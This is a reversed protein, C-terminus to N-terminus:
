DMNLIERIIYIIIPTYLFVDIHRVASILADATYLSVDHITIDKKHIYKWILKEYENYPEAKDDMFTLLQKDDFFDRKDTIIGVERTSLPQMVLVIMDDYRSFSSLPYTTSEDLMYEFKRLLRAPAGLELWAYVSNAYRIPLQVDNIKKNLVIVKSSNEYNMLSYKAIFENGTMDFLELGTDQDRFLFCNHKQNYFMARYNDIMTCVMQDIKLRLHYDDQQIIPNRDTGINNLETYFTDVVKSRLKEITEPSTSQLRYTIKYFGDQKMSDFEVNTVEFLCVMKLHNVMFFDYPKPVITTPQIIVTGNVNIDEVQQDDSNEPNAQNFGYIPFNKIEKYRLPSHKGFLEDIDQLGRDVTSSGPDQTFYTVLLAGNEIYRNMHSHLREEFKFINGDMLTREDFVLGSM